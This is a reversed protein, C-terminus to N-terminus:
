GGRNGSYTGQSSEVEEGGSDGVRGQFAMGCEYYKLLFRTKPYKKALAEIAKVPPGWATEFMVKVSTKRDVRRVRAANWKVGWNANAWTYWSSHGTEMVMQRVRAAYKPLKPFRELLEKKRTQLATMAEKGAESLKPAGALTLIDHAWEGDEIQILELAATEESGANSGELIEPMPIGTNFDFLSLEDEGEQLKTAKLSDAVTVCDPGYIYLDCECWNPV